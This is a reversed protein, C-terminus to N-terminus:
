SDRYLVEVDQMEMLDRSRSAISSQANHMACTWVCSLVFVSLNHPRDNTRANTYVQPPDLHLLSIASSSMKGSPRYVTFQVQKLEIKKKLIMDRFWLNNDRPLCCAALGGLSSPSALLPDDIAHGSVHGLLLMSDVLIDFSHGTWAISPPCMGLLDETVTRWYNSFYDNSYHLKKDM